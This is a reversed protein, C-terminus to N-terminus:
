KLNLDLSNIDPVLDYNHTMVTTSTNQVSCKNRSLGPPVTAYMSCQAFFGSDVMYGGHWGSTFIDYKWNM